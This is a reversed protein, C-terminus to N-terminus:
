RNRDGDSRGLDGLLRNVADYADRDTRMRATTRKCAHLVTAHNRGGFHRGITPLSQDTLERSLYMGIQRPWAFRAAKSSSVLEDHTLDFLSCVADQIDRVSRHSGRASGCGGLGDLVESALAADIPRGTLSHFAVLRILTGELARVNATVRDAIVELAAPDALEIRDLRARKRLITLRVAFDPPRVDAVLGAEFRETLREQVSAIDRPLRDAALVLQSGLEYLENFTHFLEEETKAKSGLFQVDDVLLVDTGRYAAKFQAMSSSQLANIFHNTFAEITTYRVSLGGGHAAVYAGISHLLHTKGLGPPGHIFLPNYAQGPTEAVALAAAHALRNSDGIVFQDFTYKPNLGSRPRLPSPPPQGVGNSGRQATSRSVIEVTVEPGLVTAASAQLVRAFRDAVWGRAEDPAAVTLVGGDLAVPLLPELWIGYASDDVARHLQATIASWTDALEGPM